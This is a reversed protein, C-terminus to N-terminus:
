SYIHHMATTGKHDVEEAVSQLQLAKGTERM